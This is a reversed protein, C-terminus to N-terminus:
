FNGSDNRKFVAQAWASMARALGYQFPRRPVVPWCQGGTAEGRYLRERDPWHRGTRSTQKVGATRMVGARLPSGKNVPILVFCGTSAIIIAAKTSNRRAM